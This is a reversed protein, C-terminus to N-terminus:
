QAREIDLVERRSGTTTKPFDKLAAGILALLEMQADASGARARSASRAQAEHVIDGSARDRVIVSVEHLAAPDNISSTPWPSIPSAWTWHSGRLVLPARGFGDWDHHWQSYPWGSLAAAQARQSRASVLVSFKALNPASQMGIANFKASAAAELKSQFPASEKALSPLREFQYSDGAKPLAQAPTSAREFSQVQADVSRLTGCGALLATLGAFIIAVCRIFM